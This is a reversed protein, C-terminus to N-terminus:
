IKIKLQKKLYNIKPALKDKFDGVNNREAELIIERADKWKGASKHAKASVFLINPYIWKENEFGLKAGQISYNMAERIRGSNLLADSLVLLAEGKQDTNSLSDIIPKLVSIAKSYNGALLFNNAIFIKLQYGSIGNDFLVASRRKAYNDDPIDDNGNRALLLQKKGEADNKMAFSCVAMNFYAAGSYDFDKATILFKDYFEVAKNFNNNRFEIEGKLFFAFSNTQVFKSEKLSLVKDLYYNAKNLERKNINLIAQQYNFVINRPYKASISSLYTEASDYDAIFDIYIRSLHFASEVKTTKGYKFSKKLLRLGEMKDGSLGTVKLAWNFLSPVYSLTYKFLGLGYYADYYKPNIKLTEKYFDVAKKTAWFADLSNQKKANAMARFTYIQALLYNADASNEDLNNEALDLAIDSYRMFTSYEIENKSGLYYWLYLMSLYHYGEPKKPYNHAIQQFIRSAKNFEFNYAAEVGSNIKQELVSASSFGLNFILFFFFYKFTKM